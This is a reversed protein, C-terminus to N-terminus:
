ETKEAKLRIVTGQFVVNHSSTNLTSEPSTSISTTMGIVGDTGNARCKKLFVAKETDLYDLRSMSASHTVVGVIDYPQKIDLTTVIFPALQGKSYKADQTIERNDNCFIIRGELLFTSTDIDGSAFLFDSEYDPKSFQIKYAFFHGKDNITMYCGAEREPIKELQYNVYVLPNMVGKKYYRIGQMEKYLMTFAVAGDFTLTDAPHIKGKAFVRNKGKTFYVTQYLGTDMEVFYKAKKVDETKTFKKDFYVKNAQAILSKSLLFLPIIFSLVFKNMLQYKLIHFITKEFIKIKLSVVL